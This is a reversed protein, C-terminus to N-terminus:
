AAAETDRGTPLCYILGADADFKLWVLGARCALDFIAAMPEALNLPRAALAEPM